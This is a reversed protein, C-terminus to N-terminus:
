EDAQPRGQEDRPQRASRRRLRAALGYWCIVFWLLVAATLLEAWPSGLVLRLLLLLTCNIALALLVMGCIMLRGAVEVVEDKMQHGTVIRHISVPAILAGASTAALIVTVVYIGRDVGSIDTFRPTFAVSLLFAFLIQVGTQAVRTEQLVESWRRNVRQQTTEGWGGPEDLGGPVTPTDPVGGQREQDTM